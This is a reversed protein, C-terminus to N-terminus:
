LDIKKFHNANGTGINSKMLSFTEAIKSLPKPLKRLPKPIFKQLSAKKKEKMWVIHEYDSQQPTTAFIPAESEKKAVFFLYSPTTNNLIVRQRVVLPDSVEYFSTKPDDVFFLMQKIQFGNVPSFVRYFLEPSFQYFGHGLFNNAPTLGIYHGGVKVMQMCNKIAVPFNFVHELSGSDLVTDFKNKLSDEIPLNMDHLMTAHEYDSVDISDVTSAGMLKFFPECYGGEKKKLEAASEKIDFKDLNEQLSLKTVNLRQRGITVVNGFLIGKKHLSLLLKTGNVNLGM